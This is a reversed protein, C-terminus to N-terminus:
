INYGGWKGHCVQCFIYGTPLLTYIISRHTPPYLYHEPSQSEMNGNANVLCIEADGWKLTVGNMKTSDAPEIFHNDPQFSDDFNKFREIDKIIHSTAGTDVMIKKSEITRQPRDNIEFVFSINEEAAAAKITDRKKYHYSERVHTQSKCYNCWKKNKKFYNPCIKAVHEKGNCKFCSVKNNMKSFSNTLKMVNDDNSNQHYKDTDKFSRLQMKFESFMLKKSSHIVYILFANFTRPLGKLVMAIILGDSLTEGANRLATVTAETRIIYDTVGENQGKRLSTLETYLSIIRPKGKGAYHDRLIRLAERGNDSAERMILSLSKYDLFQILENYVEENREMDTEDGNLNKGLIADKLSLTHLYALVKAEWIEYKTEDGDFLLRSWQSGNDRRSPGYGTSTAM